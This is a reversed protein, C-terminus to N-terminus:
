GSNDHMLAVEEIAASTCGKEVDDVRYGPRPLELVYTERPVVTARRFATEAAVRQAKHRRKLEGYLVLLLSAISSLLYIRDREWNLQVLSVILCVLLVVRRM